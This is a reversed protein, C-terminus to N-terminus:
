LTYRFGSWQDGKEARADEVNAFKGNEERAFPNELGDIVEDREGADRRKNELRLLVLFLLSCIWGIAIYTLVIGHGLRYWPKDQSRYVNSTVAGNLNGFGIAMALTVSRKYSGEVNSSVWAVRITPYIASAALYVAFYSLSPNRSVILIVYGVLRAFVYLNIYGRSGIRDGLFGIICTMICAWAYVPVSLLNAVTAQNIITPTFLSFAFLPGDFGMYMGMAIWTKWDVLSQWIYKLKLKEGGASHRMDDQLRRVVFVRESESLFKANDPFDQVIWFSAIACLVTFLGELIFIWKWGALGGIGQMNSIAAALLGSFAGAVTASSFFLAVRTGLESRKYWCSMYFVIGPYLGAEFLGLFFRVTLLGNYDHIIGHLTMVVGWGLMLFSLWRSPRLRRLAVNSPPEFLAYPFFFVTLAILYQTDTIRLDQELNYLKANGISGRDLFNLLYLLALWPVVHWDIRRMLKTEDVGSTDVDERYVNPSIPTSKEKFGVDKASSSEFSM